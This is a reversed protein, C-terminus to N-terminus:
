SKVTEKILMGMENALLGFVCVIAVFFMIAGAIYWVLTDINSKKRM